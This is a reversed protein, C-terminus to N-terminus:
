DQTRPYKKVLSSKGCVVEYILWYQPLAAFVIQPKYYSATKDTTSPGNDSPVELAFDPHTHGHAITTIDFFEKGPISEQVLFQILEEELLSWIQQPFLRREREQEKIEAIKKLQLGKDQAHYDQLATQWQILEQETNRTLQHLDQQYKLVQELNGILTKTKHMVEHLIISEERLKELLENEAMANKVEQQMIDDNLEYVTEQVQRAVAYQLPSGQAETVIESTREVFEDPAFSDGEGLQTLADQIEPDDKLRQLLNQYIQDSPDTKFIFTFSDRKKEQVNIILENRSSYIQLELSLKAEQHHDLYRFFVELRQTYYKLNHKSLNCINNMDGVFHHLILRQLPSSIYTDECWQELAQAQPTCMVATTQEDLKHEYAQLKSSLERQVHTVYNDIGFITLTLGFCLATTKKM